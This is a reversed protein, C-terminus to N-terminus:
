KRRVILRHYQSFLKDNEPETGAKKVAIILREVPYKSYAKNIMDCIHEVPHNHQLDTGFDSIILCNIDYMNALIFINNIENQMKDYDRRESYNEKGDMTILAPNKQCPLFM